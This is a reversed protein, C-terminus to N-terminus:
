KRKYIAPTDISGDDYIISGDGQFTYVEKRGEFLLFVQKNKELVTKIPNSEPGKLYHYTVTKKSIDFSREEPPLMASKNFDRAKQTDQIIKRKILYEITANVDMVWAGSLGAAVAGGATYGKPEHRKFICIPERLDSLEELRGGTLPRFYLTKRNRPDDPTDKRQVRLVIFEMGSRRHTKQEARLIVGNLEEVIEGLRTVQYTKESLNIHLVDDGYVGVVVRTETAAQYADLKHRNINIAATAEIDIDWDGNISEMSNGTHSKAAADEILIFILAFCLVFSITITFRTDRKSIIFM